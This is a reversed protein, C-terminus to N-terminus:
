NSGPTDPPPQSPIPSSKPPPYRLTIPRTPPPCDLCFLTGTPDQIVPHDEELIQDPPPNQDSQVIEHTDRYLVVQRHLSETQTPVNDALFYEFRTQCGKSNDDSGEPNPPLLGSLVCIERGVVTSPKVPWAQREKTPSPPGNKVGGSVPNKLAYSIIKNWIPSAGTVGSAVAGMPRNDNNGVWTAVLIDQNYGITWNDRKDNTTGTKVSVEPHSGVVLYSSPGFIASRANNDLLIHSIIYSVDMPLIRPGQRHQAEELVKGDYTEIKLIPILDQRVGSNAFVGFATALETMPVEGGGLTLSLGYRSPDSLSTLGMASATAVFEPLTNLYLMKVAPINFSNGLAFRVQATGHFTNDYNTPCYLPQGAVSFCTPVDILPTAPTIRHTLFGLAYNIPKITSGPQRPALTVNVNGGGETDSFDHSGVMALIEGTAPRTVLAAGNGVHASKLQDVENKVIDQARDQLSSDLTTTVRLGGQEVLKEGYKGVLLEKVWLVFHPAKLVGSQSAFKLPASSASAAQDESILHNAVMQHLVETQREKAREPHTGFPSYYTPAQTLGALLAAEPLTLDKADKSFYTHAASEIGYSTGGYPIQNLYMELIQDKPYIIEVATTLIFERIKRRITREPTLLANKVLQQSITSGGQLEQRFVTNLFARAIGRPDIGRHNYFDKDEIAITADKVAPPLDSLKIPTRNQDAYIEYLLLGSRDLIKTSIPYSSSTLNTPFPLDKFLYFLLSISLLFLVILVAEKRRRILLSRLRALDLRRSLRRKRTHQRKLM